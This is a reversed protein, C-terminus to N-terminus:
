VDSEEEEQPEEETEIDNFMLDAVPAKLQEIREASKAYLVDKIKSSVDSASGDTAILDILDEM